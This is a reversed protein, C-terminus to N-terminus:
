RCLPGFENCFGGSHFNELREEGGGKGEKAAEETVVANSKIFDIAKNVALDKKVEAAPVVSRIKEEEMQYAAAIRKIEADFDEESAEIKELEVIKELALRIKSRSKPRSM